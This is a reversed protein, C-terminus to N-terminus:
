RFVLFGIPSVAMTYIVQKNRRFERMEKRYIAPVRRMSM